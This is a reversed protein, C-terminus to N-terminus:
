LKLTNEEKLFKANMESHWHSEKRGTSSHRIVFDHTLRLKNEILQEQTLLTLTEKAM